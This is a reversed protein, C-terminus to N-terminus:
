LSFLCKVLLSSVFTSLTRSRDYVALASPSTATASGLRSIREGAVVRSCHMANARVCLEYAAM